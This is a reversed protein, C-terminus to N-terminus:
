QSFFFDNLEYIDQTTLDSDFDFFADIAKLLEDFSIYGDGDLDLAKFKAPIEVKGFRRSTGSGLNNMVSIFMEVESRPLAELNLNAWVVDDPIEVGDRDVIAGPPTNPQKDLYDPVGDGDSDFPCGVSDVLVGKPTHLCQDIVDPVLDGDEDGFMVDFDNDDIVAILKNLRLMKPDSFLDFHLSVYSYSFNDYNSNGKINKSKPSIGDIYDSFTFHYEYGLRITTRNSISFDLGVGVPIAFTNQSYNNGAPNIATDSRIDTAYNNDSVMLYGQRDESQPINRVTGDNWYYCISTHWKKDNPDYYRGTLDTKSSFMLNEIGLSIFPRILATKKIFHDFDYHINAGFILFDTQFNYNNNPITYSRQRVTLPTLGFFTSMVYINFKFHKKPDVYAHMNIKGALSGTLPNTLNNKVDGYFNLFGVSFGLVPKYVPNINEVDEILYKEWDREQSHLAFSFSFFLLVPLIKIHNLHRM